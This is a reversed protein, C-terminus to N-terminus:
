KTIVLRKVFIENDTKIKIFYTGASLGSINISTGSNNGRPTGIKSIVKSSNNIIEIEQVSINESFNIAVMDNSPNPSISVKELNNKEVYSGSNYTFSAKYNNGNNNLYHIVNNGDEMQFYVEIIYTGDTIGNLLNLDIEDPTDNWWLQNFWTDEWWESHWPLNANIFVGPTTGEKYIRYYMDADIIDGGNRKAVFLQGSKLYLNNTATLLGFDKQNFDDQNYFIDTEGGEWMAIKAYKIIAEQTFAILSFFLSALVITIKKM